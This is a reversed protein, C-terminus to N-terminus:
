GRKKDDPYIQPPGPSQGAKKAPFDVPTGDRIVQGSGANVSTQLQFHRGGPLAPDNFSMEVKREPTFDADLAAITRKGGSIAEIKTVQRTVQSGV